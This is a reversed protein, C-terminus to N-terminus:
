VELSVVKSIKDQMSVGYIVPAETILSDNHTIIIYQGKNMYRKLLAALRESNRRDLAADIEDFIYFCYPKYEQIAFILSLSILSKEGGSLSNTDFYKGKGVKILMEVGAEFLNEKDVPELTAIGKDSLQSFNRSFLANLQELTQMFSKKKRKDIDEIVKLIEEKESMITNVKEQVKEYELKINDYVELSKLNVTGINNLIAMTEELKKKLEEITMKLIKAEKLEKAEQEIAEKQAAFQAREIKLNNIREEGLHKENQKHMLDREYFHIKEQHQNKEELTRKFREKLSLDQDNREELVAQKQEITKTIEELSSSAEELERLIQKLINKNREIDRQKLTVEMGVNAEEHRMLEQVELRLTDYNSESTKVSSIQEELVERKKLLEQSEKEAVKAEESLKRLTEKKENILELRLVDQSRIRIEDENKRVFAQIKLVKDEIDKIKSVLDEITKQNTTKEKEANGVVHDVHDKTIKTKCLPCVDLSAVQAQIKIQDEIGKELVAITKEDNIKEKTESELDHRAKDLQTKLVAIKERHSDLSDKIIIETEM